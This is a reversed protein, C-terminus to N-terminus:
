TVTYNIKSSVKRLLFDNLWQHASDEDASWTGKGNMYSWTTDLDKPYRTGVSLHCINNNDHVFKVTMITQYEYSKNTLILCPSKEKIFRDICDKYDDLTTFIRKIEAIDSSRIHCYPDDYVSEDDKIGLVDCLDNFEKDVDEVAKSEILDIDLNHDKLFQAAYGNGYEGRDISWYYEALDVLEPDDYDAGLAKQSLFNVAAEEDTLFFIQAAGSNSGGIPYGDLDIPSNTPTPLLDVGIGTDVFDQKIQDETYLFVHDAGHNSQIIGYYHM